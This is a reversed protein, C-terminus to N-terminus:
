SKSIAFICNEPIADFCEMKELNALMKELFAEYKEMKKGNKWNCGAVKAWSAWDAANRSNFPLVDHCNSMKVLVEPGCIM